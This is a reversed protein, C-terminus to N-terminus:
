IARRYIIETRQYGLRELLAAGRDNVASMTVGTAGRSAAWERGHRELRLGAGPAGLWHMKLASVRGDFPDSALLMAIVGDVVGGRDSVFFGCDPHAIAASAHAAFTDGDFCRRHGWHDGAAMFDRAMPVLDPVDSQTAPRIM